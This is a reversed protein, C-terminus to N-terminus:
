FPAEPDAVNDQTVGFADQVFPLLVDSDPLVDADDSLAACVRPDLWEDASYLSALVVKGSDSDGFRFSLSLPGQHRQLLVAAALGRLIATACTTGIGLRLRIPGDSALDFDVVLKERDAFQGGSVVQRQINVLHGTFGSAPAPTAEGADANWAYLPGGSGKSPAGVYFTRRSRVGWGCGSSRSTADLHDVLRTIAASLGPDAPPSDVVTPEAVPTSVPDPILNSQTAAPQVVRKPTRTSTAM